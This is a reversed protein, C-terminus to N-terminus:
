REYFFDFRSKLLRTQQSDPMLAGGRALKGSFAAEEEEEEEEKGAVVEEGGDDDQSTPGSATLQSMCQLSHDHEIYKQLLGKIRELEKHQEQIFEKCREIAEDKLKLDDLLKVRYKGRKKKRPPPIDRQSSRTRRKNTLNMPKGNQCDDTEFIRKERLLSVPLLSVPVSVVPVINKVIKERLSVNM